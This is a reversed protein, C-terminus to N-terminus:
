SSRMPFASSQLCPPTAGANIREEKGKKGKDKEGKGKMVKEFHVSVAETSDNIVGPSHVCNGTVTFYREAFYIETDGVKIGQSDKGDAKKGYDMRPAKCFVKLGTGSPSIETYSDLALVMEWVEPMIEGAVICNDFDVGTFPDDKSFVFGLGEFQDLHAFIAEVAHSLSAWDRPNSHSGKRITYPSILPKAPKGAKRREYRWGVWQPRGRMEEPVTETLWSFGPLESFAEV